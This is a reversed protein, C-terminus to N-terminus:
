IEITRTLAKGKLNNATVPPGRADVNRSALLIVPKKDEGYLCGIVIGPALVGIGSINFVKYIDNSLNRLSYRGFTDSVCINLLTFWNNLSLQPILVGGIVFQVCAIGSILSTRKDATNQFKLSIEQSLEKHRSVAALSFDVQTLLLAQIVIVILLKLWWNNKRM